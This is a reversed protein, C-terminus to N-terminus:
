FYGFCLVKKMKQFIYNQAIRLRIKLVRLGNSYMRELATPLSLSALVIFFHVTRLFNYPELSLKCCFFRFPASRAFRTSRLPSREVVYVGRLSWPTGRLSWPTGLNKLYGVCKVAYIEAPYELVGIKLTKQPSKVHTFTKPTGHNKLPCMM